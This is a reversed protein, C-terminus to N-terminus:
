EFHMHMAFETEEEGPAPTPCHGRLVQLTTLPCLPLEGGRGGM